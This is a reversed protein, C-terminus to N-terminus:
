QTVSALTGKLTKFKAIQNKINEKEEKAATVKNDAALERKNLAEM